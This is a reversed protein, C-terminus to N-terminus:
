MPQMDFYDRFSLIDDIEADIRKKIFQEGRKGQRRLLDYPAVVM